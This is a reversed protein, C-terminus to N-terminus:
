RVKISDVSLDDKETTFKILKEKLSDDGYNKRKIPVSFDSIKFANFRTKKKDTSPQDKYQESKM